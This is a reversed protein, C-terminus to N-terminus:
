GGASLVPLSRVSPPQPERSTTWARTRQARATEIRAWRHRTTECVYESKVDEAGNEQYNFAPCGGCASQMECANCGFGDRPKRSRLQVLEKAWLSAFSRQELSYRYQTTMLCPSAFGFPDVYFNTVGAGCNYLYESGENGRHRDTYDVWRKLTAPDALEVEVAEAPPVRLQLPTQDQNPLCPFVASDTRFKVDLDKAMRAMAPVEHKNLSLIVTKLSFPIGNDKLRGIGALCRAFSGRVRTVAEYTQATAGYLSIDVGFPPYKKFLEVMSDDVLVGDCFVTVFLGAQKAYRYVEPFDRRVMPDGGTIVLYLCGSRVIDDIVEKVRATTMEDGRRQRQEEQEGLYCHVCKLNCRSTLELIGSIPVRETAVRRRFQAM